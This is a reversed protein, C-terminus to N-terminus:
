LIFVNSRLLYIIYNIMLKQLVGIAEVKADYIMYNSYDINCSLYFHGYVTNNNNNTIISLRNNHGVVPCLGGRELEWTGTQCISPWDLIRMWTMGCEIEQDATNKPM